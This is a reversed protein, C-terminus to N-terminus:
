KIMNISFYSDFFAENLYVNSGGRKRANCYITDGENLKLNVSIDVHSQIPAGQHKVTTAQEMVMITDNVFLEILWCALDQPVQINCQQIKIDLHYYGNKPVTYIGTAPDYANHTDFSKPTETTIDNFTLTYDNYETLLVKDSSDAFLTAVVQSPTPSSYEEWFWTNPPPTNLMVFRVAIYLTENYEIIEGKNYVQDNQWDPYTHGFTLGVFVTTLLLVFIVIKSRNNLSVKM